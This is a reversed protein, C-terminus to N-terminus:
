YVKRPAFDPINQKERTGSWAPLEKPVFKPNAWYGSGTTCYYQSQTLYRCGEHPVNGKGGYQTLEADFGYAKKCMTRIDEWSQAPGAALNNHCALALTQPDKFWKKSCDNFKSPGRDPLCEDCLKDPKGSATWGPLCECNESDKNCGIGCKEKSCESKELECHTGTFNTNSCDCSGGICVGENCQEDSSCHKDCHIGYWGEDCNCANGTGGEVCYGHNCTKADVTCNNCDETDVDCALCGYPAVYTTDDSCKARCDGSTPDKIKPSECSTDTTSRGSIIRMAIIAIISLGAFLLFLELLRGVVTPSKVVEPLINSSM